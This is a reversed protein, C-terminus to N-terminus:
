YERLSIQSDIRRLLDLVVSVTILLATGGIALSTFGTLGRMILPLVAIAGLFLAGVLTLRTILKGLYESTHGGPRVGPIFAGNRQLNKSISDPDFTVATYFYTFLVVLVFYAAAYLWQSQFFDLMASSARTVWTANLNALINLVM